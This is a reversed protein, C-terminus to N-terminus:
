RKKLCFSAWLTQLNQSVKEDGRTYFRGPPQVHDVHFPIGTAQSLKESIDEIVSRDRASREMTPRVRVYLRDNRVQGLFDKSVQKSMQHSYELYPYDEKLIRQLPTVVEQNEYLKNM